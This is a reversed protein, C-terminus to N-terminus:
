RELINLYVARYYIEFRQLSLKAPGCKMFHSSDGRERTCELRSLPLLRRSAGGVGGSM